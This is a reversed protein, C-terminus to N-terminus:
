KPLLSLVKPRAGKGYKFKLAHRIIEPLYHKDNEIRLYGEQKMVKEEAQTLDFTDSYFPLIKKESPANELKDFIPELAKIEQRIESIKEISCNSVAKKIEAPMLYRDAYFPRGTDETAKALFRIIDRAQLQGNFDSLAALIWRSSNAENSTPKGLKVGWLTQLTRDIVERPAMEIPAEEQYFGPVAQNVLWIVLRLAETGSWQLEMPSHQSYFQEFNVTICDRAMDKRLFIMLGFHTYKIMIESIVDRCLAAVANKENESSITQLFIEELGDALFVIRVGRRGLAEDLEELSDYAEHFTSLIVHKWIEKWELLDHTERAYRSLSDRNDIYVSKKIKHNMQFHNCNEIANELIEHLEGINGSALLPVAFIRDEDSSASREGSSKKDMHAVFKEWSQKRLIERYLFTKGSGKAGMIVTNPVSNRYRKILNKVPETMLVELAENGEATIQREALRHIRKVATERTLEDARQSQRSGACYSNRVIKEINNYFDRGSLNKMIKQLSEFHVLESAFPLETVLNDTISRNEDSIYKDYVSVLQSIMDTTNVHEQGMTLLIEPVISNGDLPLGKSLQHLLLETGKVSQYSTSTVLYKKVRPDFLLPASFESLGARLDVLVMEADVREGLKSLVEALIYKKNYSLALSEPSSYMDLLQEIYRYTPLVIHEVMSKDTEINITLESLRDAAAEIVEEVHDKEQTIELLDLFSFAAEEQGSTLWTIGPAEIDADVILLRKPSKLDKLVSWAKVFALLSLTRGVGGKYSHFALVPVGPLEKDLLESYYASQQYLVNKFLPIMVASKKTDEQVDFGVTLYEGQLDLFIKKEIGDYKKGLLEELIKEAFSKDEEKRLNIVLEDTYTEIDLITTGWRKRNLLLYREVDKWTYLLM